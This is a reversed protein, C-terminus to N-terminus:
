EWGQAPQLVGRAVRTWQHLQVEPAFAGVVKRGDVLLKSSLADLLHHAHQLQRAAGVVRREFPQELHPPASPSLPRTRKSSCLLQKLHLPSQLPLMKPVAGSAGVSATCSRQRLLDLRREELRSIIHAEQGRQTAVQLLQADHVVKDSHHTVMPHSMHKSCCFATNSQATTRSLKKTGCRNTTIQQRSGKGRQWV